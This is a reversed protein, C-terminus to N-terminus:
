ISLLMLSVIRLMDGKNVGQRTIKSKEHLMKAVKNIEVSMWSLELSTKTYGERSEGKGVTKDPLNQDPSCLMARPYLMPCRM